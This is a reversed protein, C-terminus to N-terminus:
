KLMANRRQRVETIEFDSSEKRDVNFQDPMFEDEIFEGRDENSETEDLEIEEESDYEESECTEEISYNNFMRDKGDLNSTLENVRASIQNVNINLEQALQTKKEEFAQYDESDSQMISENTEEFDDQFDEFDDDSLLEEVNSDSVSSESDNDLSKTYSMKKSSTTSDFSSRFSPHSIKRNFNKVNKVSSAMEQGIEDSKNSHSSSKRSLSRRQEFSRSTSPRDKEMPKPSLSRTEIPAKGDVKAEETCIKNNQENTDETTKESVVPSKEKRAAGISRVPIKSGASNLPKTDKSVSNQRTIVPIKSTPRKSLMTQNNQAMQIKTSIVPKDEAIDKEAEMLSAFNAEDPHNSNAILARAASDLAFEQKEEIPSDPTPKVIMNKYKAYKQSDSKKVPRKRELRPKAADLDEQEATTNEFKSVMNKVNNDNIITLTKEEPTVEPADSNSETTSSISEKRILSAKEARHRAKRSSKRHNRTLKRAKPGLPPLNEKAEKSAISNEDENTNKVPTAEETAIHNDENAEQRVRNEEDKMGIGEICEPLKEEVCSAEETPINADKVLKDNGNESAIQAESQSQQEQVTSTEETAINSNEKADKTISDRENDITIQASRPQSDEVSSTETAISKNEKAEKTHKDSEHEIAIQHESEPQSDEVSGTEETAGDIDENLVESPIRVEDPGQKNYNEDIISGSLEHDEAEANKTHAFSTKSGDTGNICMMPNECQDENAPMDLVIGFCEIEENNLHLDKQTTPEIKVTKELDIQVTNEFTGAGNKDLAKTSATQSNTKHVNEVAKVPSGNLANAEPQTAKFVIEATSEKIEEGQPTSPDEVRQALAQNSMLQLNITTVSIKRTPSSKTTSKAELIKSDNEQEKNFNSNLDVQDNSSPQEFSATPDEVADVFQEDGIANDDSSSSSESDPTKQMKASDFGVTDVVQIVTSSKEVYAKPSQPEQLNVVLPHTPAEVTQLFIKSFNAVKSSNESPALVDEQGTNTPDESMKVSAVPNVFSEIPLNKKQRESAEGERDQQSETSSTTSISTNLNPPVFDSNLNNIEQINKFIEDELADLSKRMSSRDQDVNLQTPNDEGRFKRLTAGENGAENEIGTPPGWIRMLFPKIQMKSLENYAAELDGHNATLVTVIDERSFDGKSALEAYKQQRQEVCEQVAPWLEGKHKQMAVRAEKESVTGVINMPGERGMQTALTQVSAIMADWHEKLWQIPNMDQLGSSKLSVLEMGQAKFSTQRDFNPDFFEPHLSVSRHRHSLPEMQEMDCPISQTTLGYYFKSSKVVAAVVVRFRKEFFKRANFPISETGTKQRKQEDIQSTAAKSEQTSISQPPPSTGTSATSFTKENHAEETSEIQIDRPASAGCATSVKATAEQNNGISLDSNDLDEYKDTKESIGKEKSKADPIKKEPETSKINLKELRTQMSETESYDKASNASYDDSSPSQLVKNFKSNDKEKAKISVIRGVPPKKSSVPSDSNPKKASPESNIQKVKCTPTKCCVSCVRTGPDNVFTCHECSWSSDPVEVPNVLARDEDEELLDARHLSDDSQEDDTEGSSSEAISVRSRAISTKEARDSNKSSMARRSSEKPLSATERLARDRASFRGGHSRRESRNDSHSFVSRRDDIENSDEDSTEDRYKRRSKKSLTSKRSKVSQTPSAPRSHSCGRSHPPPLGYPYMGPPPGHWTGMWMPNAPYGGPMMNLSMNSGHSPDYCCPQQEMWANQCCPMPYNLQAMSHAQQMPVFGHPHHHPAANNLDFVSASHPMGRAAPPCSTNSLKRTLRSGGDSGSVSDARNRYPWQDQEWDPYGSDRGSPQDFEAVTSPLNPTTGRMALQHQRYRQQLSPSPSPVQFQRFDEHSVQSNSRSPPYNPPGHHSGTPTPPLPRNGLTLGRRLSNMKDRLSFAGSDKRPM